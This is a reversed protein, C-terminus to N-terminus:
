PREGGLLMVDTFLAGAGGNSCMAVEAGEIQTTACTGRLQEVGRIVRQLMQASAGAHSYSMVGGDTTIPFRGGPGITGGMVFDGGEGEGCFGFAEFQRIIEFSFPDYFECVDVDTPQLAAARFAEEAARRGVTGNVLDTRRNGGLEWTPASKYSPGGSDSNGGLIYVPRQPLDDALDARTLVISCGGESATACDLLHFPDAVMRSDLIDQPTFPGREFYVAEPNVHGNNRIVSAVTALAEPKTGYRHMHRRAVLAFEAATFMGFPAVFESSPRTWPATAGRDVYVGAAGGVVLVRTAMGIAIASAAQLVAPIGQWSTSIWAPLLRAQYVFDNAFQGVVGDIDRVALGADAVAGLAGKFSISMSDEGELVRAQETNFVGAIAVDHFPHSSATM